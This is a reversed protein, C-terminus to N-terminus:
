QNKKFRDTASPQQNINGAPDRQCPKPTQSYQQRIAQQPDQYLTKIHNQFGYSAHSRSTNETTALHEAGFAQHHQNNSAQYITSAKQQMSIPVNSVMCNPSDFTLPNISQSSNVTRYSGESLHVPQYQSNSPNGQSQQPYYYSPTYAYGNGKGSDNCIIFYPAGNQNNALEYGYSPQFMLPMIFQGNCNPQMYNRQPPVQFHQRSPENEITSLNYQKSQNLTHAQTCPAEQDELRHNQSPLSRKTQHMSSKQLRDQNSILSGSHSNSKSLRCAGSALLNQSNSSHNNLFYKLEKTQLLKSLQSQPKIGYSHNVPAAPFNKKQSQPACQAIFTKAVKESFKLPESSELSTKPRYQPLNHAKQKSSLFSARKAMLSEVSLPQSSAEKATKPADDERSSSLDQSSEPSLKHNHRVM